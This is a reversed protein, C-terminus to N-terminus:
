LAIVKDASTPRAKLRSMFLRFSASGKLPIKASAEAMRLAAYANKEIGLCFQVVNRVFTWRRAGKHIGKRSFALKAQSQQRWFEHRLMLVFDGARQEDILLFAAWNRVAGLDRGKCFILFMGALNSGPFYMGVRNQRVLLFLPLESLVFCPCNEERPWLWM